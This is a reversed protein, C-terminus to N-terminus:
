VRCGATIIFYFVPDGVRQGTNGSHDARLAFREKIFFALGGTKVPGQLIDSFLFLGLDFFQEGPSLDFLYDCFPGLRQCFTGICECFGIFIKFSGIGLEALKGVDGGVIELLGYAFDNGIGTHQFVTRLIHPFLGFLVDLFYGSGAPSHLHKDTIDKSIGFKGSSRGSEFRDVELGYDPLHQDFELQEDFLFAGPELVMIQGGDIGDRQLHCLEEAVKDGIRQFIGTGVPRRQDGNSGRDFVLLGVDLDPVVANTEILLIGVLDEADELTKM